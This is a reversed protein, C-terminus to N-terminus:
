TGDKGPFSQPYIEELITKQETISMDDTVEDLINPVQSQAIEIEEAISQSSESIQNRPIRFQSKSSLKKQNVPIRKGSLHKKHIIRHLNNGSITVRPNVKPLAHDQKVKQQMDQSLSSSVSEKDM